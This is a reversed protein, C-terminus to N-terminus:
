PPAPVPGRAERGLAAQAMLPSLLTTLAVMLVLLAYGQASVLGTDLAVKVVVLGVAGRANLLSGTALGERWGLGGLRAGLTCGLVKALSAAAVVVLLPVLSEPMPLLRLDVQAGSVVFFVPMLLIRTVDGLRRVTDERLVGHPAVLAGVALPGLVASLGAGETLWAALLSLSLIGVFPGAGPERLAALRRHNLRELLLLAILFVAVLGLEPLRSASGGASQLAAIAALLLWGLVDDVTAAGMAITGLPTSMLKLDELIRALVPLASVTVAIGVMVWATPTGPGDFFWGPFAFPLLVGAAMPIVLGGAAVMLVPRALKGSWHMELGVRLVFLVLGLWALSQLVQAGSPPFLAGHMQPWLWGLLSPGLAVGLLIEGVVGPIRMKRSLWRVAGAGAVIASLALLLSGLASEAV